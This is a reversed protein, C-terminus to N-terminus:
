NASLEFLAGPPGVAAALSIDRAHAHAWRVVPACGTSACDGRGLLIYRVEGARVLGALAAASLLPQGHYSTLMLVPRADRVILPSARFVTTSAVEYRAGGQHTALFTSLSRPVDLALGANSRHQRAVSVSSAVPVSLAAVLACAVLTAPPRRPAAALAGCAWAAAVASVTAWAPPHVLAVGALAVVAAGVALAIASLRRRRARVALWAVGVGLVAAIAPTVAELYRPQMRQAMSLMGVGTVLWAGLFAAGALPLRGRLRLRGSLGADALAVAGFVMAALLTAGVLAAYDVGGTSLFRLPGPPDLRLAAASAHGRLRDIGNFVFVVNWVGGNTSGIPWPHPGPALSAGTVWSLSVAVFAGLGAALVRVRRRAPLDFALWALVGLAPMVILAEFVKVNFALGLAAGAAVVFWANRRQAGVVVLWAALVDLLMMLSDMTDSHATVVSIPLVALAAAAGLGATRGFLRRVLDYVLPVALVGALAEPLRVAISSFGLLKTSAVQLWLDVPTKDISVQAAPEFAGYLFNHWSLGMSRVAADYFSNPPVLAFNAFRLVAALATIATISVGAAPRPIAVLRAGVRPRSTVDIAM